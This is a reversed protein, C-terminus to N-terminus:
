TVLKYILFFSNAIVITMEHTYTADRLNEASQMKPQSIPFFTPHTAM